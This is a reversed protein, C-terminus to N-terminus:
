VQVILTDLHRPPPALGPLYSTALVGGTVAVAEGHRAPVRRGSWAAGRSCRVQEGSSRRM